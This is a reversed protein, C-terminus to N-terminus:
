DAHLATRAFNLGNGRAAALQADDLV